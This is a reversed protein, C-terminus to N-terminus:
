TNEASKLVELITVTNDGGGAALPGAFLYHRVHGACVVESDGCRSAAVRVHGIQDGSVLCRRM